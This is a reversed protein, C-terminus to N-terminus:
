SKLPAKTPIELIFEVGGTELNNMLLRGGHVEVAIKYSIALGLGTGKGVPKTTFFPDFIKSKIEESIPLGSNAIAVKVWDEGLEQILETAIRIEKKQSEFNELAEVANSIINMFLQNLQSPYCEILPLESYSKIVQISNLKHHLLLLTSDIGEHLNVEKTDAEDLRSFNRLSLVISRIRNSGQQMSNLIQPLDEALFDLDIEAELEEIESPLKPQFKKYLGILNILNETYESVHAINGHIFSVPNNIEHAIGGVMQGLSSMKESQVLQTQTQKLEALALKLEKARDRLLIVQEQTKQFLKVQWWASIIAMVLLVSLISALFNLALLPSEINQRPIILAISWDAQKLPAYVIYKWTGDFRALEIGRQKNVMKRAIAALNHDKAQLFSAVPKDVTGRMAPDPHFIPVGKSNLAFAYSGKGYHLTSIIDTVRQVGISGCLVGSPKKPPDFSRRVPVGIPVLPKGTTRATVPDSVYIQGGIAKKFFERNKINVLAFGSNTNYFSGNPYALSIVDFEGLRDVESQLYGRAESWKLTRVIPTSAITELEAKRRGLWEDIEATSQQVELLAKERIQQLIIGRVLQYSILAITGVALTTLLLIPMFVAQSNAKSPLIQQKKGADHPPIKIFEM